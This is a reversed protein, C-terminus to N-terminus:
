VPVICRFSHGLRAGVGNFLVVPHTEHDAAECSAATRWCMQIMLNSDCSADVALCAVYLWQSAVNTGNHGAVSIPSSLLLNDTDLTRSPQSIRRCTISVATCLCITRLGVSGRALRATSFQRTETAVCLWRCEEGESLAGAGAHVTRGDRGGAIGGDAHVAALCGVAM